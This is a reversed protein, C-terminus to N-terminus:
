REFFYYEMIRRTIPAAVASGDGSNEVIVVVAIEPNDMPAYAAFWAHPLRAPPNEATGTKACVGLELLPSDWFIHTATGYYETTTNCLGEIVVEMVEPDINLNEMPDPEMRYSFQDLLGARDVLQPRLMDGGNAVAAMLRTIQLPTVEVYGQGVALNVADSFTWNLGLTERVWDPTGIFGASEVIDTLGTSRGFGVRDAYGPLIEPDAQNLHYGAEYYYPNCSMAISTMLNVNGHGRALWDRRFIDRNWGGTCVYPENLAYVGSDAAAISTMVKMVSGTPYRGQTARNLQPRRTDGEVSRVIAEAETKGMVPFATFANANFTPYSVMALIAGTNVDMVIAAGGRSGRAWGEGAAAYADTMARLVEQQFDVEITLYVSEAPYPDGEALIRLQRGDPTVLQLTGGASGRLTADWSAEIGSRGMISDQRFGVAEVAPIEGEDPYGVHGIIHPALEGRIYRRTPRSDFRADCDAELTAQWQNYTSPEIVGVEGLQERGFTQVRRTIQDLPANLATALTTLCTEMNPIEGPIVNVIVIRGNMDALIQGNRDYINARNPVTTQLRLLAGSGMEAFIDGPSWAVRWDGSVEDLVLRLLRNQDTFSGILHSDFTVNYVFEMVQHSPRSQVLIESDIGSLRMELSARDYTAQFGEFNTTQKSRYSILDYMTEYDGQQWSHLFTVAVQEAEILGPAEPTTTPVRTPLIPVEEPQGSSPQCATIIFLVCIVPLLRHIVYFAEVICVFSSNRNYVRRM